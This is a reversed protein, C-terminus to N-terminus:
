LPSVEIGKGENGAGVPVWVEIKTGEGPVSTVNFNGGFAEARERMITMGHSGSRRASQLSKIGAGKDEIALYIADEEQRLVLTAEKTNAHKAINFIAEQAIRVLALELNPDLRPLPSANNEFRVNLNHRSRFQDVLSGLASELGYDDVGSPRLDAMVSRVLDIVQAALDISDILRANTEDKPTALLEDSIIVLNMKLAALSQTVGDHLERAVIRRETEQADFLRQSLLELSKQGEVLALNAAKLDTTGEQVLRELKINKQQLSAESKRLIEQVAKRHTIDLIVGITYLPKGGGDRVLSRIIGVWIIARNRRVYRQEINYFPLRGSILEKYIDTERALDTPDTLDHIDLRLLEESKYGTIRCFEGNVNIYRGDLSCVVIGLPAHEFLEVLHNGDRSVATEKIEKQPKESEKPSPLDSQM